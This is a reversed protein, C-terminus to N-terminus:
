NLLSSKHIEPFHSSLFEYTIGQKKLEEALAMQDYGLFVVDVPYKKFIEWSGLVEDGPVVHFRTDLEQIRAIRESLPYKPVKHKLTQVIEDRTVVVFLNETKKLAEGLFYEHGKHLNDFVGFVLAKPYM